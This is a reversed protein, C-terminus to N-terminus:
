SLIPKVNAGKDPSEKTFKSKSSFAGHGCDQGNKGCHLSKIFVSMIVAGADNSQGTGYCLTGNGHYCIIVSTNLM